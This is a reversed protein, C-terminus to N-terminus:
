SLTATKETDLENVSADKVRGQVTMVSCPAHHLVYNSVSGLMLENLGTRGRRGLIILDANWTRALACIAKGADGVGETYETPIGMSTALDTHEQLFQLGAKEFAEARKVYEETARDYMWPYFTDAGPAIPLFSHEDMFPSLVYLLMLSANIAKALSVAEQFVRDGMPSQDIAALIKRTM